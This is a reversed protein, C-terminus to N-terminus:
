IQRAATRLMGLNEGLVNQLRSKVNIADFEIQIKRSQELYRPNDLVENVATTMKNGNLNWYRLLIGAGRQQIHAMNLLQDNNCVIGITPVGYSLAAHVLPSGGNCIVLDANQCAAEIPVFDTVFVNQMTPLEPRKGALAVIIEIDLAGLAQIIMPLSDANGSSGLTLFIRRKNPNLNKWWDPVEVPMSWILPGIFMEHSLQKKLPVLEPTDCYLVVDGDTIIQRYDTFTLNAKRLSKRLAFTMRFFSIKLALPLFLGLLIRAPGEGLIRVIPAEPLPFRLRTDPHWYANTLNIYKINRVRCSVTLSHRFDGIVLDPKIKEILQIDEQIHEDFTRADYIPFAHVVIQEFKAADICNLELFTVSTEPALYRFKPHSALYIDFLETDLGEIWKLPRAFHAMTVAHAFFLLIKRETM